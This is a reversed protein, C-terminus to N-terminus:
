RIGTSRHAGTLIRRIEDSLQSLEFPKTLMGEYGWEDLQAKTGSEAYGSTILVAMGSHDARVAKLLEWGCLNPMMLDLIMLDPLREAQKLFDLAESGDAVAAVRYGSETLYEALVERLSTEDEVVLLSPTAPDTTSARAAKPIQKQRPASHHGTSIRPPIWEPSEAAKPHHSLAPLFVRFTTGVGERTELDIHGQHADVIGHVTSLGLGTGRGTEKTTFFPDFVNAAVTKSMGCGDDSIEIMVCRDHSKWLEEGKGPAVNHASVRLTGAGKALIADHGNIMLNMLLQPIQTADGRVPWLNDAVDFRLAVRRDFTAQVMRAADDILPGIRVPEQRIPEKRAFRLLNKVVEAGGKSTRIIQEVTRIRPDDPGTQLQITEACVMITALMNNFDHAIGGALTGVAELRQSHLLNEQLQQLETIDEAIGVIRTIAARETVPYSRDRIWRVDGNPQVIRYKVDVEQTRDGIEAVAEDRDDPHIDRQYSMPQEILDAVPRGWIHAYAPSVYLMRDMDPTSVWFVERINETVDALLAASQAHDAMEQHLQLTLEAYAATRQHVKQELNDLAEELRREAKGLKRNANRLLVLPLAMAVAAVSMGELVFRWKHAPDSDWQGFILPELGFEWLLLMMLTILSTSLVIFLSKSVMAFLVNRGSGSTPPATGRMTGHIPVGNRTNAMETPNDAAPPSRYM